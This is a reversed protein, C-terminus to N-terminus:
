KVFNFQDISEVSKLVKEAQNSDMSELLDLLAETSTPECSDNPVNSSKLVVASEHLGPYKMLANNIEGLEVRFGRIKIQHDVRGLFEILGDERYRGLDGTRYMLNQHDEIFPSTIFKQSDLQPLNLYGSSIGNGCIYIEGVVGAPVLELNQDLIYVRSNPIPQGIPVVGESQDIDVQHVTSWVTAETPGYENYLKVEPLINFHNKCTESKCTEGAVIVTDLSSLKQKVGYTLLLDYLSPLMLTHTVQHQEILQSLALLDQEM